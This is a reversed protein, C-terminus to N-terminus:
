YSEPDWQQPFLWDINVVPSNLRLKLMIGTYFSSTIRAQM